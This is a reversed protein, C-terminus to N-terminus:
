NIRFDYKVVQDDWETYSGFLEEEGMDLLEGVFRSHLM